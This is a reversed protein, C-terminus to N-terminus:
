SETNFGSIEIFETIGIVTERRTGDPLEWTPYAMINEAKCVATQKTWGDLSCEEYNIYQFSTGFIEKQRKCAGCWEAGYMKYGSETLHKALADYQGVTPVSASGCGALFLLTLVLISLALHKKFFTM